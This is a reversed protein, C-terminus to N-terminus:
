ARVASCLHYAVTGRHETVGARQPCVTSEHGCIADGGVLEVGLGARVQQPAHVPSLIDLM